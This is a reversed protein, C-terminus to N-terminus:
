RQISLINPLRYGPNGSHETRTSMEVPGLDSIRSLPYGLYGPVGSVKPLASRQYVIIHVEEATSIRPVGSYRTSSTTSVKFARSYQAIEVKSIRPVRSYQGNQPTPVRPVRFPFPCIGLKGPVDRVEPPPYGLYGLISLMKSM